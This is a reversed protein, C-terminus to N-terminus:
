SSIRADMHVGSVVERNPLLYTQATTFWDPLNEPNEIPKNYANLLHQHLASIIIIIM